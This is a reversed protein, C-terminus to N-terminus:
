HASDLEFERIVAMHQMNLAASEEKAVPPTTALSPEVRSDFVLGNPFEKAGVVVPVERRNLSTNALVWDLPKTRNASTTSDGKQDAPFVQPLVIVTGLVTLCPERRDQTNFDGGVVLYDTQPITRRIYEVLQEAEATRKSTSSGGAKLHLSIAWLPRDGPVQIKAYDFGRDNVALDDWSGQTVIPYRSIIGNPLLDHEDRYFHFIPGSILDVLQRPTGVETRFEQILVIDPKLAHLIRVGHGEDYTQTRGSSVNAAAIRVRTGAHGCAPLLTLTACLVALAPLKNM